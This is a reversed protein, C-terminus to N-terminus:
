PAEREQHSFSQKAAAELVILQTCLKAPEGAEATETFLDWGDMLFTGGSLRHYTLGESLPQAGVDGLCGPRGRVWM